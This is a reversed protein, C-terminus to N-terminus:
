EDLCDVYVLKCLCHLFHNGEISVISQRSELCMACVLCAPIHTPRYFCHLLM